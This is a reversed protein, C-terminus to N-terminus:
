VLLITPLTLHTYSVAGLGEAVEEDDRIARLGWGLRSNHILYSTFLAFLMVLMGLRFMMDPFTGLADIATPRLRVGFGGDIFNSLRVISALVFAVSLTLLGFIEGRLQRLRFTVFGMILALLM